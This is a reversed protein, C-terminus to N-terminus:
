ELRKIVHYGFPCSEGDFDAIGVEGVELSFGVEGFCAVMGKRPYEGEGKEVGKNAMKYVGPHSDDTNEKVLAGFDEGAKASELLEYARARAALESRTINKGDLKGEFSVLIHQVVIHEPEPPKDKKDAIAAFPVTVALLCALAISMRM